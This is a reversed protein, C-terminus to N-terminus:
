WENHVQGGQKTKPLAALMGITVFLVGALAGISPVEALLVVGGLTTLCPVAATLISMHTAGLASVARTYVFISVAGILVGQFVGQLLIDSWNAVLLKKTPLLAYVPIYLAMSFVAVTAAASSAPLKLRQVFVGYGSWLVAALLLYLDGALQALGTGSLSDGAMMTVGAFILTLGLWERRQITGPAAIAVMLGTFLPLTGHLLVAGHAAPAHSFGAYAALAFGLGGLVTLVTVDCWRLGTLGHRILIPLLVTGGVGFRLAALDLAGLSSSVGLRSVITFSSFLVVVAIACILGVGYSETRSTAKTM